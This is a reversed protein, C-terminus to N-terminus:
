VKTLISAEEEASIFNPIYYFDPPLSAIKFTQLTEQNKSGQTGSMKRSVPFTATYVYYTTNPPAPQQSLCRLFHAIILLGNARERPRVIGPGAGLGYTRPENVRDKKSCAKQKSIVLPYHWSTGVRDHRDFLLV